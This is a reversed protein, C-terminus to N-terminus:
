VTPAAPAAPAEPAAPAAVKDVPVPTPASSDMLRRLSGDAIAEITQDAGGILRGSVFIQPFTPWRAWIKIALRQGWGTLYNGYGLYTYPINAEDLARRARRVHPNWGMGVVVVANKQVADRVEKITDSEYSQLKILAADTIKPSPLEPHM